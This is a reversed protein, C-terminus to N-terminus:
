PNALPPLLKQIKKLLGELEKCLASSKPLVVVNDLLRQLVGEALWTSDESEQAWNDVVPLIDTLVSNFEERILLTALITELELYCPENDSIYDQLVHVMRALLTPKAGISTLIEGALDYRLSGRPLRALSKEKHNRKILAQVKKLGAEVSKVSLRPGCINEAM